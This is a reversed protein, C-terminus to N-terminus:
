VAIEVIRGPESTFSLPEVSLCGEIAERLNQVLEEMTEGQTACGPIAPVEAWFGGEDAEHIIAKFNM